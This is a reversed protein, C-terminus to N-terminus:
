SDDANPDGQTQLAKIALCRKCDKKWGCIDCVDGNFIQEDTMQQVKNLEKLDKICKVKLNFCTNM